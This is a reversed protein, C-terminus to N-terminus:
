LDDILSSEDVNDLIYEELAKKDSSSKFDKMKKDNVKPASAIAEIMIGEDVNDLVAEKSVPENLLRQVEAVPMPKDTNIKKVIFLSGAVLFMLCVAAYALRRPQLLWDLNVSFRKSQKHQIKDMVMAPLADFYAEDVKFVNVKEIKGLTPAIEGLETLYDDEVKM